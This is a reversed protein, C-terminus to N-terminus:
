AFSKKIKQGLIVDEYCNILFNRESSLDKERLIMRGYHKLLYKYIPRFAHENRETESFEKGRVKAFYFLLSDMFLNVSIISLLIFLYCLGRAKKIFLWDSVIVQCRKLQNNPMSASGIHVLEQEHWHYFNLGCKNARWGWEMDEGYLFFDPDFLLDREIITQRHMLLFAGNIWAVKGSYYHANCQEKKSQYPKRFLRNYLFIVIPNAKLEHSFGPFSLRLTEQYTGDYNILRTGLITKNDTFHTTYYKLCQTLSDPTQVVVDSNLLLIYEGKTANIGVNNARGFGSNYDMQIWNVQPFLKKIQTESNDQSYNDVVLIEYILDKEKIVISQICQAILKPSKFNVIVVSLEIEKKKVM